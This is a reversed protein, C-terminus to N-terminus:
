TEIGNQALRFGIFSFRLTPAARFRYTLRMFRATNLWSGGRLVRRDCDINAVNLADSSHWNSYETENFCDQVWERINGSVDYLGFANPRFSKVPATKRGDWQSGCGDCNANNSGVSRGWPYRRTTGARAAYEWEAETPLRFRQGTQRNLWPIFKENIDNWSVEIVPRKGKGWGNDGANESNDPCVGADICLQYTDWTVETEGLYFAKITRKHRPKEDDECQFDGKSCGMMFSGAPIVKMTFSINGICYTLDNTSEITLIQCPQQSKTTVVNSQPQSPESLASAHIYFSIISGIILRAKKSFRM